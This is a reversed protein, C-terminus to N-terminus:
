HVYKCPQRCDDLCKLKDNNFLYKVTKLCKGLAFVLFILKKLDIKDLCTLKHRGIAHVSSTWAIISCSDDKNM